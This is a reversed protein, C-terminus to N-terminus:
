ALRLVAEKVFEKAINVKYKNKEFPHAGELAIDAATEANEETPRKGILFEEAARRKM